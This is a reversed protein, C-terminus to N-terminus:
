IEVASRSGLLITYSTYLSNGFVEVDETTTRRRNAGLPDLGGRGSGHPDQRTTDIRGKSKLEQQLLSQGGDDQEYTM